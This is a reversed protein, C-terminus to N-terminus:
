SFEERLDFFIKKMNDIGLALPTSINMMRYGEKIWKKAVHPDSFTTLLYKDSKNIKNVVDLMINEVKPHHIKGPVGISASLDTPGVCLVEFGDIALIDDIKEYAEESEMQLVLITENNANQIVENESVGMYTAFFPAIGREGIPPYKGYRVSTEAEEPNDIQPVMVGVAGMDYAKKIEGPDNWQVRTIPAVGSNRGQICITGISENGWPSHEQDIWVFDPGANYIIQAVHTERTFMGTGLLLEKNNIKKRIASPYM